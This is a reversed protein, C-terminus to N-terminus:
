KGGAKAPVSEGATETEDGDGSSKLKPVDMKLEKMREVIHVRVEDRGEEGHWKTLTEPNNCSDVFGIAETTPMECLNKAKGNPARKSQPVDREIPVVIGEALEWKLHPKAVRWEDDDIENTGPLIQIQNRTLAIKKAEDSVAILPVVKVHDHKPRYKLLM